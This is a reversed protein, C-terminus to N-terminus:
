FRGSPVPPMNKGACTVLKRSAVALSYQTKEVTLLGDMRLRHNQVMKPYYKVRAKHSLAFRFRPGQNRYIYSPGQARHFVSCLQQALTGCASVRSPADM